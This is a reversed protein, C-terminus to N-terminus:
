PCRSSACARTSARSRAYVRGMEGDLPGHITHCVPVPCLAALSAALLGSHDNILDFDNAHLWATLTHELEPISQGIRYSPPEAFTSVLEAKTVSGGSAFLVVEHGEDVLGDALLSVVWEIGGYREPPVAFWAPAVVGIKLAQV